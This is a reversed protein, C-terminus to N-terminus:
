KYNGVDGSSELPEKVWQSGMKYIKKLAKKTLKLDRNINSRTNMLERKKNKLFEILDSINSYSAIEIELNSPQRSKLPTTSKKINILRDSEAQREVRLKDIIDINKQM